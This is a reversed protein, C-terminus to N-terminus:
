GNRQTVAEYLKAYQTSITAVDFRKVNEFGRSILDNRYDADEIVRQIGSRISVASFPDVLCTAGGSVEVMSGISSTVVPRGIAQAEVIPLGFGEYTSAFVVLDSQQYLAVLRDDTVQRYAEWDLGYADLRQRAREDLPGVVTFKCKIGELAEAVRSLNKNWGTGIQLIVPCQRSFAKSHPVFERSVPDHIVKIAMNRCNVLTQLERKTFESIAVVHDARHLPIQYWLTKLIWRKLGTHRHLSSCDHITLITKQPLIIALYHVDGTIHNVSGAEARAWLMNRIRNTIGSSENPCKKVVARIGPPLHQRIDTFVRELSFTNPGSKREFYVVELEKNM